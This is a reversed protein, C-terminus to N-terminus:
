GRDDSEDGKKIPLPSEEGLALNLREALSYLYRELERIREEVTGGTLRPPEFIVKM